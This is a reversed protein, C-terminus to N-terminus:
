IYFDNKVKCHHVSIEKEIKADIKNFKESLYQGYLITKNREKEFLCVREFLLLM